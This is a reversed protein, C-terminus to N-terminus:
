SAVQLDNSFTDFILTDYHEALDFAARSLAHWTRVLMAAYDYGPDGTGPLQVEDAWLRFTDSEERAKDRAARYVSADGAAAASDAETTADAVTRFLREALVEIRDMHWSLCRSCDRGVGACTPCTHNCDADHREFLDISDRLAVATGLQELSDEVVGTHGNDCAALLLSTLVRTEPTSTARLAAPLTQTSIGVQSRIATAVDAALTILEPTM